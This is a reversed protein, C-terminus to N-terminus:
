NWTDGFLLLIASTTHKTGTHPLDMKHETKQIVEAVARNLMTRQKRAGRIHTTKRRQVRRVYGEQKPVM